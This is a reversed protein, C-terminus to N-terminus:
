ESLSDAKRYRSRVRNRVSYRWLLGHISIYLLYVDAIICLTNSWGVWITFDLGRGNPILISILPLFLAITWASVMVWGQRVTRPYRCAGWIVLAVWRLKNMMM